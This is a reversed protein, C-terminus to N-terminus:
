ECLSNNFPLLPCVSGACGCSAHLWQPSRVDCYLQMDCYNCRHRRVLTNASADLSNVRSMTTVRVRRHRRRRRRVSVASPCCAAGCGRRGGSFACWQRRRRRRGDSGASDRHRLASRRRRWGRGGRRRGAGCGAGRGGGSPVANPLHPQPHHHRCLSLSPFDSARQESCRQPLAIAASRRPASRRPASRRPATAARRVRACEGGTRQTATMGTEAEAEGRRHRGGGSGGDGEGRGGQAEVRGEVQLVGGATALPAPVRTPLHAAVRWDGTHTTGTANPTAAGREPTPTGPTTPVLRVKEM